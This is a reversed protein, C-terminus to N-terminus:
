AEDEGEDSGTVAQRRTRVAAAVRELLHTQRFPKLIIDFVPVDAFAELDAETGRGTVVVAAPRQEEPVDQLRHLFEAGSMSPMLLDVMVVDFSQTQIRELAQAGDDTEDTAYGAETLMDRLLDASLSEDELILIRGPEEIPEPAEDERPLPLWVTFTSGEDLRSEVTIRGEYQRVITASVSLGLGTGSFLRWPSGTPAHEGKTSFFPAFVHSLDEEPIGCGTDTVRVYVDKGTHGTEVTIRPNSRGALADRANILLSLVVQSIESENLLTSPTSEFQHDVHIGEARLQTELVELATRAIDDLRAHRRGGTQPTALALLKATIDRARLASQRIRMLPERDQEPVVERNLLLDAYGLIGVNLNNFQHAIGGALLGVAAVREAQVMAQESERQESLDRLVTVVRVTRGDETVPVKRIEAAVVRGDMELSEETTLSEGTEFVHAYESRQKDSLFPYASFLDQGLIDTPLGLRKHWECLSQNALLVTHRDNIVHIAEALADLTTRYQQESTLLASEVRERETAERRLEENTSAVAAAHRRSYMAIAVGCGVVLAVLAMGCGLPLLGAAGRFGTSGEQAVAATATLFLSFIGGVRVHGRVIAGGM